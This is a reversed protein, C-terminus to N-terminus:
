LRALHDQLGFGTLEDDFDRAIALVKFLEGMQDPMTLRKIEQARQLMQITTENKDETEDMIGLSMLFPAQQTYGLADMGAAVASQAIATFNVHATIDQLGLLVFPDEHALQRYYCRLSGKIRDTRYYEARTYGYDVLLAVGKEFWGGMSNIWASAHTHLETQYGLAYDNAPVHTAIFNQLSNTVAKNIWVFTEEQYGVTLEQWGSDTYEIRTVPMADLVENALVVGTFSDPLRDIWIVQDVYEPCHQTIYDVQRLKLSASLEIIYYCGSFGDGLSSVIQSALSGDGAGFELIDGGTASLIQDCQRALCQGFLRGSGPATIFDGQNGFKQLANAYYGLGPEYLAMQMFQAFSLGSEAKQIHSAIVTALQDSLAQAAADPVPLLNPATNPNM